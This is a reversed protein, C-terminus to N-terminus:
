DCIQLEFRVSTRERLYEETVLRIPVAIPAAAPDPPVFPYAMNMM